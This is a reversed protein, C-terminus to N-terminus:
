ANPEFAVGCQMAARHLDRDLTALVSRSAITLSLYAADYGTLEFRAALSMTTARWDFADPPVTVISLADLAASIGTARDSDIRNRKVLSSLVNAIEYSWLTPALAGGREVLELVRAAKSDKEDPLSWALTVSADIVIQM